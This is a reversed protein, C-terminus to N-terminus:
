LQKHLDLEAWVADHDSIEDDIRTIGFNEMRDHAFKNLLVHDLQEKESGHKHTWQEEEPLALTVTELNYSADRKGQLIDLPSSKPADNFDGAVAVFSPSRFNGQEVRPLTMQRVIRAQADRLLRTQETGGRRSKLHAVFLSMVENMRKEGQDNTDNPGAEIELDVRLFKGLSGQRVRERHDVYEWTTQDLRRVPETVAQFRSIVAVNQGTFPDLTASSYFYKIPSGLAQLRQVLPELVVDGEVEQLAVVDAGNPGISLIANAVMDIKAELGGDPLRMGWRSLPAENNFLWYCNFSALTFKM